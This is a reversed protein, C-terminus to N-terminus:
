IPTFKITVAVQATGVDPAQQTQVQGIATRACAGLKGFSTAGGSIGTAVSSEDIEFALSISVATTQKQATAATRYCARLAPLSREVARRVVSAPLPGNVDLSAITPTADMSGVAVPTPAPAVPAPTAPMPKVAVAPAPAPAPTPTPTPPVPTPPTVAEVPKAATTSVIATASGSGTSEHASGSGSGPKAITAAIETARKARVQAIARGKKGKPDRPTETEPEDAVPTPDNAPTPDPTVESDSGAAPAVAAVEPSPPAAPAPPSAIEPSPPTSATAVSPAPPSVAAATAGQRHTTMYAYAGGGVAAVALLTGILLPARSRQPAPPLMVVPSSSASAPRGVTTAPLIGSNRVRELAGPFPTATTGFQAQLLLKDSGDPLAAELAFLFEEMSAYRDDPEKALARVVVAELEAPIEANFSSPLPLPAVVQMQLVKLLNEDAFPVRGTLMLYVVIGFSYVDARQDVDEGRCAEPAMFMPSGLAEGTKTMRDSVPLKAIGFDLVKVGWRGQSRQTLFINEPKVDRHIIGDVHAYALARAVPVSVAVVEELSMPGSEIRDALTQGVLLEMVFYPRASATMGFDSIRVINEHDLQSAAHAEATFRARAEASTAHQSALVKAAFKKQLTQHEVLYVSAM